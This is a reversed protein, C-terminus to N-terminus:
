LLQCQLSMKIYKNPTYRNTELSYCDFFWQQESMLMDLSSFKLTPSKKSIIKTTDLFDGIIRSLYAPWIEMQKEREYRKM